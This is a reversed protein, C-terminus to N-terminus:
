CQRCSEMWHGFSVVDKKTDVPVWVDSLRESAPLILMNGGDFPQGQIRNSLGNFITDVVTFKPNVHCLMQSKATVEQGNRPDEGFVKGCFM